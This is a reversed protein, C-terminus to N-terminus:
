GGVDDAPAPRFIEKRRDVVKAAARLGDLYARLRVQQAAQLTQERQQDRQALWAASDATHRARLQVVYYGDRGEILESREGVALGFAAGLVVPERGLYGPPSLRTFPGWANSALGRARAAAALDPEARMEAYLREAREALLQQKKELRVAASLEPRIDDLPPVGAPVLSDLRFVYYAPDAEVVPSTEGVRAEFAWVGVDPILWRGLQLRDGQVIRQRPGVPLGLLRAATDLMRGNVQDAAIRDLSDARGEVVDLREERLEFPVLIHRVRMSDGRAQDVRILHLGFQTAVPQSTEGPRLRRMADLFDRDFNAEAARIWGLDGGDRGSVSDSSERKAVAEFAAQGRAAEARLRAARARAAASDAADPLRAVAVYSVFAVAPRTFDSENARLHARLEADTASVEVDMILSPLFAVATVTVSDRQDRFLRWLKADSVYVDSTLYQALKAQPIQDRYRAELSLLFQPDGGGTALFRQWKAPDFQGDTQFQALQMLEPPPNSRAAEQIERETAQLGLRRYAQRLLVEQILQEVVQDQLQQEDERTLPVQSTRARIQELANQYATQYEQISVARGNVKLVDTSSFAGGSTLGSVDLVLWAVFFIVLIYFIWKTNERMARMM